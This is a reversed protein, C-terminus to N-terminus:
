YNNLLMTILGLRNRPEARGLFDLHRRMISVTPLHCRADLYILDAIESLKMVSQVIILQTKHHQSITYINKNKTQKEATSLEYNIGM